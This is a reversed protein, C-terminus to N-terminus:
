LITPSAIPGVRGTAPRNLGCRRIATKAIMLSAKPDSSTL